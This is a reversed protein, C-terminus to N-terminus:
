VNFCEKPMTQTLFIIKKTDQIERLAGVIKDKIEPRNIFREYSM